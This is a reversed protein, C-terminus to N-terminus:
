RVRLISVNGPQLVASAIQVQFSLVTVATPPTDTVVFNVTADGSSTSGSATSSGAGCGSLLGCGADLWGYGFAASRKM